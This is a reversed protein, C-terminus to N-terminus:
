LASLDREVAGAAESLVAVLRPLQEADYRVSPLSVSLAAVVAGDGGRVPVGVAVVGRESRELNVAFGQRAIQALEATLGALDLGDAPASELEGHPSRGLAEALRDADLQALLLLGGSTRHAPFVMGERSGVRLVQSSEISAIFRVSAGTRVVLNVSEALVDVLRHMHPLAASRLLSTQSRSHEALQLVPGAHYARVGDQVAFDRYVLMQLLRHATSRAVGIREAAAAVTVTGELQLMAALRLAHDVSAIAYTPPKRVPEEPRRGNQRSSNTIRAHVTPM